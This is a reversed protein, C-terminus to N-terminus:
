AHVKFVFSGGQIQLNGFNGTLEYGINTKILTDINGYDISGDPDKSAHSQSMSKLGTVKSFGSFKLEASKYCTHENSKPTQYFESDPWISAELQFTLETETLLWDLVFSDNMDISTFEELETWNMDLVCLAKSVQTTLQCTNKSRM